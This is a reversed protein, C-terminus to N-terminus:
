KEKLLIPQGSLGKDSTLVDSSYSDKHFSYGFDIADESEPKSHTSDCSCDLQDGNAFADQAAAGQTGHIGDSNM